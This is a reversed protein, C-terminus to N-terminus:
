LAYLLLPRIPGCQIADFFFKANPTDGPKSHTFTRSIEDSPLCRPLMAPLSAMGKTSAEAFRLPSHTPIPSPSCFYAFMNWSDKLLEYKRRLRIAGDFDQLPLPTLRTSTMTVNTLRYIEFRDKPDLTREWDARAQSQSLHAMASWRAPCRPYRRVNGFKMWSLVVSFVIQLICPYWIKCANGVCMNSQGVYENPAVNSSFFHM